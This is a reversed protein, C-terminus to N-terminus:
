YLVKGNQQIQDAIQNTIKDLIEKKSLGEKNPIENLKIVIENETLTKIKTKSNPVIGGSEFSPATKNEDEIYESINLTWMCNNEKLLDIKLVNSKEYVVNSATFIYEAKHVKGTEKDLVTTEGKFKIPSNIEFKSM